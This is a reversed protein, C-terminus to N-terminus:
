LSVRYFVGQLIRYVSYVVQRVVFLIKSSLIPQKRREQWTNRRKASM